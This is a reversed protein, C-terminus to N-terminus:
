RAAGNRTTLQMTAPRYERVPAPDKPAHNALTTKDLLHRAWEGKAPRVLAAPAMEPPNKM